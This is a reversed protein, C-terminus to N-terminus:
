ASHRLRTGAKPAIEQGRSVIRTERYRRRASLSHRFTYLNGDDARVKFFSDDPGYWQDLVEEVMFLRSGPHFRM